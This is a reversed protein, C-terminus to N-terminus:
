HTDGEAAACAGQSLVSTGAANAMCANSYTQNDCGCVPALMKNCAEPKYQCSGHADARGCIDGARWLCVQDFGCTTRSASRGGCARGETRAVPLYIETPLLLPGCNTATPLCKPLAVGGRVLVGERTRVRLLAADVVTSEAAIAASSVAIVNYDDAGNLGYATTTPCPATICRIGNDAARYFSGDNATTAAGTIGLWGENAKLVGVVSRGFYTRYTKAKILAKGGELAAEFDEEERASLGIGNLQISGVYCESRRAGDACLTTTENVRKVWFGGCLPSVCRRADRRTVQFYGYNAAGLANESEGESEDAGITVDDEAGTGSCGALVPLSSVSSLLLFFPAYSHPLKM